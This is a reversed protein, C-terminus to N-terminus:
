CSHAPPSSFPQSSFARCSTSGSPCCRAVRPGMRGMGGHTVGAGGITCCLRVRFLVLKSVAHLEMFRQAVNPPEVIAQTALDPNDLPPKQFQLADAPDATVSGGWSTGRQVAGREGGWDGLCLAVGRDLGGRGPGEGQRCVDAGRRLVSSRSGLRRGARQARGATMDLRASPSDYRRRRAAPCKPSLLWANGMGGGGLGCGFRQGHWNLARAKFALAAARAPGPPQKQRLMGMFRGIATLYTARAVGVLSALVRQMSEQYDQELGLIARRTCPTALPAHSPTGIKRQSTAAPQCPSSLPSPLPGSHPM